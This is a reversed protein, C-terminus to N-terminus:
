PSPFVIKKENCLNPIFIRKGEKENTVYCNYSTLRRSILLLIHLYIIEYTYSVESRFSSLLAYRVACRIGTPYANSLKKEFIDLINQTIFYFIEM